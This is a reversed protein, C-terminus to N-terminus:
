EKRQGKGIEEEKKRNVRSVFISIMVTYPNPPIYAFEVCFYAYTSSLMQTFILALKTFLLGEAVNMAKRSLPLFLLPGPPHKTTQPSAPEPLNYSSSSTLPSTQNYSSFRAWPPQLLLPGPPINPQILLLPSLSTTPPSHPSLLSFAWCIAIVFRVDEYRKKFDYLQFKNGSNKNM